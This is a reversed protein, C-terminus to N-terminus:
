LMGKFVDGKIYTRVPQPAFKSVLMGAPWKEASDRSASDIGGLVLMSFGNGKFGGAKFSSSGWNLEHIKKNVNQEIANDVMEQVIEKTVSSKQLEQVQKDTKKAINIAAQVSAKAEEVSSKVSKMDVSLGTMMQMM